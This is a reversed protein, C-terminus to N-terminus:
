LSYTFGFMANFGYSPYFNWREYQAGTLNNLKLFFSFNRTYRYEAGLNLVIAPDLEYYYLVPTTPAYSSIEDSFIYKKAYRKGITTV